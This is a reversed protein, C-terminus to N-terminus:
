PRYDRVEFYSRNKVVIDYMHTSKFNAFNRPLSILHVSTESRHYQILDPNQGNDYRKWGLERLSHELEAYSKIVQNSPIYVLIRRRAGPATAIGRVTPEKHEFSEKTPNSILRAVGKKNFIWVGSM